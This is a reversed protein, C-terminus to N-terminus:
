SQCAAQLRRWAGASLAARQGVKDELASSRATAVAQRGQSTYAVSAGEQESVGGAEAV